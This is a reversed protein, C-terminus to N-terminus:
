FMTQQMCKLTDFTTQHLHKPNEFQGENYIIQGKKSKAVKQALRQFIQRNKKRIMQDGQGLKLEGNQAMYTDPFHSSTLLLLL